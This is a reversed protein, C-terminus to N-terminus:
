EDSSSCYYIISSHINMEVEEESIGCDPSHGLIITTTNDIYWEIECDECVYTGCDNDCIYEADNCCKPCKTM